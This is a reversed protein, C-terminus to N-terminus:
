QTLGKEVYLICHATKFNDDMYFGFVEEKQLERVCLAWLDHPEGQSSTM